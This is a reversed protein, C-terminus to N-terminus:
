FRRGTMPRIRREGKIEQPTPREEPPIRAPLPVPVDRGILQLLDAALADSVPILERHGDGFFLVIDDGKAEITQVLDVNISKTPSHIWNAM